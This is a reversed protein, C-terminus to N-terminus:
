MFCLVQHLTPKPRSGLDHTENGHYFASPFERRNQIEGSNFIVKYTTGAPVKFQPLMKIKRCEPGM